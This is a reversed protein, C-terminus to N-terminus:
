RSRWSRHLPPLLVISSITFQDMLWIGNDGTEYNRWLIDLQGNRNYDALGAVRWSPPVTPLMGVSNLSIGNMFWVGNQGTATNRWFIDVNGDGNFDGVGEIAWDLPVTPTLVATSSLTTGNLFWFGTDGSVTNRWLLDLFGDQNFDGVGYIQWDQPVSPSLVVVSSISLGNMLWIGTVGGAANRWLIDVQGDQNFDGTGRIEYNRDEVSPILTASEFTVGNMFWIANQGSMSNRWLIDSFGDGNFDSNVPPATLTPDITITFIQAFSTDQGGSATGGSDRVRVEFTSTGSTGTAPTYTLTGNPAIAPGGGAAFLAPNSINSVLYTATQDSENAAGPNFTAWNPVIQVGRNPAPPPNTATFSPRDNVPNVTLTITRTATQPTGGTAGGDNATITLSDNGFFNPNGQYTVASASTLTQNIQTLTGSLTVVSTGNNAINASTLGGAIGTNVTVVGNAATLTVTVTSSGADVDGVFGIPFVLPTDENVTRAPLPANTAVSVANIRVIAEATPTNDGFFVFNRLEYPDPLTVRTQFPGVTLTPPIFATYDRLQGSLIPTNNSFLTYLDGLVVLDYNTLVTTNVNVVEAQTFLTRFNSAPPSDPELAPDAQTTGDNQAWIRDEWFGLEIGKQDNGIVIVSFGARDEKGDNNKNASTLRNEDIVQASFSLVYGATRDLTPFTAANVPEPTFTITNLGTNQTFRYNSYGAYIPFSTSLTTGGGGAFQTATGGLVATDRYAFWPGGPASGATTPLLNTAGNYLTLRNGIFPADNVGTVNVTKTVPSSIEGTGDNLIIAITRSGSAPLTHSVSDYTLNRLLAEVATPTAASNLSIVLSEHSIGGMFTGIQIGGFNIIRGDLGIQGAGNGQHRIALRDSALGGEIFNVILTGNNFNAPNDADTVTANSDLLVPPANETYAIAGGPLTIVPSALLAGYMSRAAAGLVLSTAIAGTAVELEWNGGMEQNGTLDTSAAIDAGTLQALQQVFTLGAEGLAVNCGYLLIDADATLAQAWAQLESAYTSLNGLNLGTTGLQLSGSAGHSLIHLSSIGRYQLLTQTMQQVADQVPDLVYVATDSDLDVLLSQYHTVEPDVFVIQSPSGARHTSLWGTTLLSRDDVLDVLGHSGSSAAPSFDTSLSDTVSLAVQNIKM